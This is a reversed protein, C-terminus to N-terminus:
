DNNIERVHERAPGYSAYKLHPMLHILDNIKYEKMMLHIFGPSLPEQRNRCKIREEVQDLCTMAVNWNVKPCVNPAHNSLSNVLDYTIANYLAGVDLLAFRLSGQWQNHINTEDKIMPYPLGEVEHPLPGEGHRTVYARTVYTVDLKTIGFRYALLIV